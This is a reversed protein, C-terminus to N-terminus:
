QVPRTRYAALAADFQTKTAHHLGAKVADAHFGAILEPRRLGVSLERCYEDLPQAHEQADEAIAAVDSASDPSASMKPM